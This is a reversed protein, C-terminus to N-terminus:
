VNNIKTIKDINIIPLIPYCEHLHTKLFSQIKFEKPFLHKFGKSIDTTYSKLNENFNLLHNSQIPLILLLQINPNLFTGNNTIKEIENVTLYNSIDKATPPFNYPYFWKYDLEIKKYYNYTWYIGKIYNCIVSSIISSDYNV